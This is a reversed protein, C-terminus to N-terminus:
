PKIGLLEYAEERQHDMDAEYMTILRKFEPEDQLERYWIGSTLARRWNLRHNKGFADFLHEIAKDKNGRVVEVSARNLAHSWPFWAEDRLAWKAEAAKLMEEAQESKPDQIMMLKATTFLDGAGFPIDLDFDPPIEFAGPQMERFYEIAENINRKDVLSKIYTDRFADDSRQRSDLEKELARRAVDAAMGYQERYQHLMVRAMLPVPQGAGIAEAKQLWVEAQGIDGLSIWHMAMQATLEYDDPDLEISKQNLVLSQALNGNFSQAMAPGYYRMPNDPEIEGIKGCFKNALDPKLMFANTICLDWLLAVSYPDIREAELLYEMGTRTDGFDFIMRGMKNLAEANRPDSDLALNLEERRQKAESQLGHIHARLIHAEANDPDSKLIEALIPLSTEIDEKRTIAGTVMLQHLTRLYGLRAPLYDPDLQMATEFDSRAQSLSAFSFENFNKLGQLYLDYASL